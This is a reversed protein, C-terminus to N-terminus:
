LTVSRHADTARAAVQDGAYHACTLTHYLMIYPSTTHYLIIYHWVYQYVHFQAVFGGVGGVPGEMWGDTRGGVCRLIVVLIITICIYMVCIGIHCMCTLPLHKGGCRRRPGGHESNTPGKPMNQSHAMQILPQAASCPWPCLVSGSLMSCAAM